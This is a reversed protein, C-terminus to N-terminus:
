SKHMLKDKNRNMVISLSLQIVDGGSEINKERYHQITGHMYVVRPPQITLNLVYPLGDVCIGHMVANRNISCNIPRPNQVLSTDCDVSRLKYGLIAM